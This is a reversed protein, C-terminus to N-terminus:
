RRPESRRQGKQAFIERLQSVYEIDEPKMKALTVESGGAEAELALIEAKKAAL